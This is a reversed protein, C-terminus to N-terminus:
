RKMAKHCPHLQAIGCQRRPKEYLLYYLLGMMNCLTGTDTWLLITKGESTYKWGLLADAFVLEM